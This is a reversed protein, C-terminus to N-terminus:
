TGSLLKQRQEAWLQRLDVGDEKSFRPTHTESSLGGKASPTPEAAPQPLPEAAPQPLSSPPVRSLLDNWRKDLDLSTDQTHDAGGLLQEEDRVEFSRIELAAATPSQISAFGNKLGPLARQPSGLGSFSSLRSIELDKGFSFRSHQLTQGDLPGLRSLTEDRRQGLVKDVQLSGSRQQLRWLAVDADKQQQARAEEEARAIEEQRELKLRLLEAERAAERAARVKAEAEAEAAAEAAVAAGRAEAMLQQSLAESAASAAQAEAALEQQWRQRDAERELQWEAVRIEEEWRRKEAIWLEEAAKRGARLSEVAEAESRCSEEARQLQELLSTERAQLDELKAELLPLPWADAAEKAKRQSSRDLAQEEARARELKIAATRLMRSEEKAIREDLFRCSSRSTSPASNYTLFDDQRSGLSAPIGQYTSAEQFTGCWQRQLVAAAASSPWPTSRLVKLERKLRKRELSLLEMLGRSATGQWESEAEEEGEMAMKLM